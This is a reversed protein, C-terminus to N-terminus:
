LGLIGEQSPLEVQLAQCCEAIEAVTCCALGECLLDAEVMALAVGGSDEKEGVPPLGELMGAVFVLPLLAPGRAFLPRTTQRPAQHSLGLCM